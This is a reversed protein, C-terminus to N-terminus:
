FLKNSLNGLLSKAHDAASDVNEGTLVSEVPGRLAAPLKDRLFGRVVDAVRQAQEESLNVQEVLRGILEKMIM